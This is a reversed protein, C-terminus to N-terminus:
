LELGTQAFLKQSGIEVLLQDHHTAGTMGALHSASILLIATESWGACFFNMLGGGGGMEFSFVQVHHCVGTMGAVVPPM